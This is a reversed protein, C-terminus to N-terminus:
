GPRGASSTRMANPCAVQRLEARAFQAKVETVRAIVEPVQSRIYFMSSSIRHEQRGVKAGRVGRAVLDAVYESAASESRFVGLSIANRNPGEDFVHLDRVGLKELNKARALVETRNPRPPIYVWWGDTLSVEVPTALEALDREALMARAVQAEQTSFPGLEVCREVVKIDDRAAMISIKDSNQRTSPTVDGTGGSRLQVAAFLALNVILLVLLATRM